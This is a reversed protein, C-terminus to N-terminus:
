VVVYGIYNSVMTLPAGPIRTKAFIQLKSNLNMSYLVPARSKCVTAAREEPSLISRPLKIRIETRWREQVWKYQKPLQGPPTYWLRQFLSFCWRIGSFVRQLVRIIWSPNGLYPEYHQQRAHRAKAGYRALRQMREMEVEEPTKYGPREIYWERSRTDIPTIPIRARVPINPVAPRLVSNPPSNAVLQCVRSSTTRFFRLRNKKGYCAM